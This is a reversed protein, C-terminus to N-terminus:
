RRPPEGRSVMPRPLRWRRFQLSRTVGYAVHGRPNFDDGFRERLRARLRRILLTADVALVAITAWMLVTVALQVKAATTPNSRVVMSSFSLIVLAFLVVIYYDGVNFRSDVIDRVFRRVPGRDREAFRAEDGTQLAIRQEDRQTRARERAQRAAEKRDLTVMPKRRAEERERRTPTPRNKAGPREAVDVHDVEAPPEKKRGFV